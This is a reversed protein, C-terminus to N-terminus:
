AIYGDCSGLVDELNVECLSSFSAQRADCIFRIKRDKKTVFFAGCRAKIWRRLRLIGLQILRVFFGERKAADNKLTTHWYRVPMPERACRAASEGEAMEMHTTYRRLYAEAAPARGAYPELGKELSFTALRQPEPEYRSTSSLIARLSGDLEVGEPNDGYRRGRPGRRKTAGGHSAM